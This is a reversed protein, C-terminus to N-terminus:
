NETWYAPTRAPQSGKYRGKKQKTKKHDDEPGSVEVEEEDDHESASEPKKRRRTDVWETVGIILTVDVHCPFM